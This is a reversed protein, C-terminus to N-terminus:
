VRYWQGSHVVTGVWAYSSMRGVVQGALFFCPVASTNKPKEWFLQIPIVYLLYVIFLSKLKTYNAINPGIYCVVCFKFTQKYHIQQIDDGYLEEPFLRLIRTCHGAKEECPLNNPAHRTICPHTCHYM